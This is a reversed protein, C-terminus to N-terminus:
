ADQFGVKYKSEVNQLLRGQSQLHQGRVYGHSGPGWNKWRQWNKHNRSGGLYMSVPYFPYPYVMISLGPRKVKNITILKLWDLKTMTVVVEPFFDLRRDRPVATAHMAARAKAALYTFRVELLANQQPTIAATYEM